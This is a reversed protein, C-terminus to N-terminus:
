IQMIFADADHRDLISISLMSLYRPILPWSWKYYAGCAWHDMKLFLAGNPHDLYIYNYLSVVKFIGLMLEIAYVAYIAGVDVGM